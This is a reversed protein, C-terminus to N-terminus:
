REEECMARWLVGKGASREVLDKMKFINGVRSPGSTVVFRDGVQASPNANFFIRDTIMMDRKQYEIIESTSANQVWSEVSTAVTAMTQRDGVDGTDRAYSPREHRVRHIMQSLLSM